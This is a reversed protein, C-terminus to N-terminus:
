EGFIIVAVGWSKCSDAEDSLCSKVNKIGGIEDATNSNIQKFISFEMKAVLWITNIFNRTSSVSQHMNPAGNGAM